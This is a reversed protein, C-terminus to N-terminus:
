QGVEPMEGWTRGDLESGTKGKGYKALVVRGPKGELALNGDVFINDPSLVCEHMYRKGAALLSGDSSMLVKPGRNPQVEPAWEGWQKFFFSVGASVCQDRLSRAWDPHMPRAKPGSEGGAIVWSIPEPRRRGQSYDACGTCKPLLVGCHCRAGDDDIDHQKICGTSQEHAAIDAASVGEGDCEPCDRHGIWKSLDVPGLLPECSLFRVAAPIKLLDPIRADATAQNEVSAGIWVNPLPWPLGSPYGWAKGSEIMSILPRSVGIRDAVDQQTLGDERYRRIEEVDSLCLKAPGGRSGHRVKDLQNTSRDSWRLNVLRNDRKDGNMHRCEYGETPPGVHALLVLRHIWETRPKNERWLTISFRGLRRNLQPKLVRGDRRIRGLTSAEYAYGPVTAWVEQGSDASNVLAVDRQRAVEHVFEQDALLSLANETRKTLCQYTHQPTSAMVGFMAAIFRRGEESDVISEHFLDSLSNVFYTTPKRRRLPVALVEPLLWLEGTWKAGKGLTKGDPTEPLFTLADRKSVGLRVLGKASRYREGFRHVQGQAYCNLCGGQESGKAPSCGIVPNLTEGTWEIKSV